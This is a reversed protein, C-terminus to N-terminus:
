KETQYKATLLILTAIGYSFFLFLLYISGTVASDVGQTHFLYVVISERVGIGSISVPILSSLSGIMHIALVQSFPITYSFTKFILKLLIALLIWLTITGAINKLIALKKHKWLSDLSTGFGSFKTAYKRLVYKRVIRRSKSTFLTTFAVILAMAFLLFIRVAIKNEFYLFFGYSSFIVLVLFTIIKDMIIASSSVGYSMKNKLLHVLSLEGLKGPLFFGAARAIMNKHLLEKYTLKPGVANLLFLMNVTTLLIMIIVSLLFLGITFITTNSLAEIVKALDIKWLLFSLATLGVIMRIIFNVKKM